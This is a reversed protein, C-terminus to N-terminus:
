PDNDRPLENLISRTRKVRLFNKMIVTLQGTPRREYSNTGSLLGVHRDTSHNTRGHSFSAPIRVDRENRVRKDGYAAFRARVDGKCRATIASRSTTCLQTCRPHLYTSDNSAKRERYQVYRLPVIRTRKGYCDSYGRSESKIITFM